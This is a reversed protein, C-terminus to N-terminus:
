PAGPLITRISIGEVTRIRLARPPARVPASKTANSTKGSAGGAVMSQVCVGGCSGVIGMLTPSERVNWRAQMAVLMASTMSVHWRPM